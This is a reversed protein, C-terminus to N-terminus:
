NEERLNVETYPDLNLLRKFDEWIERKAAAAVTALPDIQGTQPSVILQPKGVHCLRKLHAAVMRGDPSLEGRGNLLMRRLAIQRRSFKDSM